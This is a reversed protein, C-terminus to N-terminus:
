GEQVFLMLQLINIMALIANVQSQFYNIDYEQEYGNILQDLIVNFYLESTRDYSNEISPIEAYNYQIYNKIKKENLSYDAKRALLVGYVTSQVDLNSSFLHKGTTTEDVHKALTDNFNENDLPRVNKLINYLVNIDGIDKIDGTTLTHYYDQLKKTPYDPDFARAVNLYESYQLANMLSNIPIAEYIDKWYVFWADLKKNNIQDELGFISMTFLIDGGSNYLTISDETQFNYTEYVKKIGSELKFPKSPLKDGLIRKVMSTVILKNGMLDEISDIFFLGAEEDYYKLLASFVGPYDIDIELSSCLEVYYLLNLIDMGEICTKNLFSLNQKLYDLNYDPILKAVNVIANPTYLDISINDNNTFGFLYPDETSLSHLISRINDQKNNDIEFDVGWIESFSHGADFIVKGNCRIFFSFTIIAGIVISAVIVTILKTRKNINIM